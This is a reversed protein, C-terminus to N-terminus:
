QGIPLSDLVDYVERFLKRSYGQTMHVSRLNPALVYFRPAGGPHDLAFRPMYAIEFEMGAKQSYEALESFRQNVHNVGIVRVHPYEKLLTNVAPIARHCPPCGFYWFYLLTYTSDSPELAFTDGELNILVYQSFDIGAAFIEPTASAISDGDPRFSVEEPLDDPLLCPQDVLSLHDHQRKEEIVQQHKKLIKEAMSNFCIDPLDKVPEHYRYVITEILMEKKRFGAQYSYEILTTDSLRVLFERERIFSRDKDTYRIRLTDSTIEHSEPIIGKAIGAFFRKPNCFPNAADHAMVYPVYGSSKQADISGTTFSLFTISDISYMVFLHNKPDKREIIIRRFACTLSWRNFVGPFLTTTVTGVYPESGLINNETDYTIRCNNEYSYKEVLGKKLRRLERKQGSTDYPLMLLIAVLWIMVQPSIPPFIPNNNM